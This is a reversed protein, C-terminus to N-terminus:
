LSGALSCSRIRQVRCLCIHSVNHTHSQATQKHHATRHPTVNHHWMTHTHTHNHHATRNTTHLWTCRNPLLHLAWPASPEIFSCAGWTCVPWQRPRALSSSTAHQGLTVSTYTHKHTQKYTHQVHNHTQKYTHQVHKYTAHQGLTVSTHTHTHTQTNTQADPPRLQDLFVLVFHLHMAQAEDSYAHSYMRAIVGVFVCSCVIWSCVNM